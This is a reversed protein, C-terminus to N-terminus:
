KEEHKLFCNPLYGVSILFWLSESSSVSLRAWHADPLMFFLEKGTQCTTGETIVFWGLAQGFCKVVVRLRCMRFMLVHKCAFFIANVLSSLRVYCYSCSM